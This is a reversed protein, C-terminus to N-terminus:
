ASAARDSGDGRSTAGAAVPGAEPARLEGEGAPSLGTLVRAVRRNGRENWHVDRRRYDDPGVHASLPLFEVGLDRCLEGIRRDAHDPRFRRAARDNERLVGEIQGRVLDSLDPITAVVLRAGIERCLDRGRALLWRCASFARRSVHTEPSCIDVFTEFNARRSPFPWEERSVHGTVIEWDGDSERVFPSRYRDMHPRLNDELDNGSYLLWVVVKGALRDALRRMLMLEQVMDYGPAGLAKIQVGDAVNAFFDAEGVANGYAFSDGVVVIDADEVSTERGRWGEGDTRVRYVDGDLDRQHADVDGRPMWGIEPEFRILEHWEATPRDLLRDIGRVAASMAVFPLALAVAPLTLLLAIPAGVLGLLNRVLTKM